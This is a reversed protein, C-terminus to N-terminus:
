ILITTEAEEFLILCVLIKIASAAYFCINNNYSIINKKSDEYYYAVKNGKYTESLFMDNIEKIQKILKQNDKFINKDVSYTPNLNFTIVYM